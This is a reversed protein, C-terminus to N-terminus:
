LSRFLPYEDGCSTQVAYYTYLWTAIMKLTWVCDHWAHRTTWPSERHMAYYQRSVDFAVSGSVESRLAVCLMYTNVTWSYTSCYYGVHWQTFSGVPSTNHTSVLRVILSLSVQFHFQEASSWFQVWEGISM